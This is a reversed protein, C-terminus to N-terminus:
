SEERVCALGRRQAFAAPRSSSVSLSATVLSATTAVFITSCPLPSRFRVLLSFPLSSPSASSICMVAVYWSRLCWSLATWSSVEALTNGLVVRRVALSWCRMTFSMSSVESVNGDLVIFQGGVHRLRADCSEFVGDPNFRLPKGPGDRHHSTSETRFPHRHWVLECRLAVFFITSVVTRTRHLSSSSRLTPM